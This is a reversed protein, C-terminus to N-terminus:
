TQGPENPPPEPEEIGLVKHEITTHLRLTARVVISLAISGAVYGLGALVGIAAGVWITAATTLGVVKGGDRLIAGAGLFGIGTVIGAAIRGADGRPAVLLSCMTFITSGLCILALTRMGAPKRRAERESGLLTGCVFSAAVIVIESWPSPFFVHMDGWWAAGSLHATEPLAPTTAPVVTGIQAIVVDLGALM